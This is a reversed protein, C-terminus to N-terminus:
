AQAGLAREYSAWTEEACRRWSFKAAQERGKAVLSERLADDSALSDIARTIAAPDLPDFLVAADGAVEPLSSSNSCAVPTGRRMAELVPMGFGEILTPYVFLRAAAYLGELDARDIWGTFRVRGTIGLREAEAILRPQELGAHGVVVLRPVSSAAFAELLRPINKHELGSAVCLAFQDDGLEFRERLVQEGTREGHSEFGAGLYTVDIKERAIGFTATLDEASANSITIVREARRAGLPVLLDLGKQAAKPFTGPHHHFILDHISVVRVRGGWLPSTVGLSHLLAVKDRAARLPLMLLECAVRLPKNRAHFPLVSVHVNEPWAPDPLTAGAERGCYAVFEDDPRLRALEGILERALIETGGVEGPVLYLLNLGIRM